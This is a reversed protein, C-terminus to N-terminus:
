RRIEFEIANTKLAESAGLLKDSFYEAQMRHNGERLSGVSLRREFIRSEGPYLLVVTRM